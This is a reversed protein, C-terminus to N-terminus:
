CGRFLSPVRTWQNSHSTASAPHARTGSSSASRTSPAAPSPPLPVCPAPPCTQVHTMWSLALEAAALLHATLAAPALWCSVCGPLEPWMPAHITGPATRQNERAQLYLLMEATPSSRGLQGSSPCLTLCCTGTLPVWDGLLIYGHCHPPGRPYWPSASTPVDTGKHQTLAVKCPQTRKEM